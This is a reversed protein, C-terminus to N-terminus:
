DGLAQEFREVTDDFATEAAIQPTPAVFVVNDDSLDAVVDRYHLQDRGAVADAVDDRYPVRQIEPVIQQGEESLVFDILLEASRPADADATLGMMRASIPLGDDTAAFDLLEEAGAPVTSVPAYLAIAYEGSVLKEGMTGASGEPRVAPGIEGLQSWFEDGGHQALAWYMGWQADPTYMTIKGDYHDPDAAVLAAVDALSSPPEDGKALGDENYVIGFPDASMLYLGQDAWQTSWQPLRGAEPSEYPVTDGEDIFRQWGDPAVSVIADASEASTASEAYYREFVETPGLDLTRVEIWPYREHFADLLPRWDEESMVSYVDVTGEDRSAEVVDEYSAPYYDPLEASADAASVGDDAGCAGSALSLAVLALGAM